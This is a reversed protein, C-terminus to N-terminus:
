ERQGAGLRGIQAVAGLTDVHQDGVAREVAVRQDSGFDFAASSANMEIRSCARRARSQRVASAM